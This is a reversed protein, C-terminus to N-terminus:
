GLGQRWALIQPLHEHDHKFTDAALWALVPIGAPSSGLQEDTLAALDELLRQRALRLAHEAEAVTLQRREAFVQANIGDIEDSGYYRIEEARGEAILRLRQGAHEEWFAMHALVDKGAWEGNVGPMALTEGDLGAIASWLHEREAHMQALLQDRTM